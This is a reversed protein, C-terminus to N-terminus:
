TKIYPNQKLLLRAFEMKKKPSISITHFRAYTIEIKDMSLAPATFPNTTERISHIEDIKIKKKIPGYEIKLFHNEITYGTKFWIWMFGFGIPFLIIIKIWQKDLFEPTM